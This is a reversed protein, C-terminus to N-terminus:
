QNKQKDIYNKFVKSINDINYLLVLLDLQQEKHYKCIETDTTDHDPDDNYIKIETFGCHNDPQDTHSSTKSM